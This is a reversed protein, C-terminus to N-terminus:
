VQGVKGKKELPESPVVILCQDKVLVEVRMGVTFGARELWRGKLPLHPLHKASFSRVIKLSRNAKEMGYAGQSFM